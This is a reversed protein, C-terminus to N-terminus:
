HRDPWYNWPYLQCLHGLAPVLFLDDRQWSSYMKGTFSFLYLSKVPFGFRLLRLSVLHYSPFFWFSIIIIIIEQHASQEFPWRCRKGGHKTEAVVRSKPFIHSFNLQFFSNLANTCPIFGYTLSLIKPRTQESLTQEFRADHLKM